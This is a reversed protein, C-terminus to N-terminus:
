SSQPRLSDAIMSASALVFKKVEPHFEPRQLKQKSALRLMYLTHYLLGCMYETQNKNQTLEYARNRIHDIAKFALQAKSDLSGPVDLKDHEMQYALPREFAIFDSLSDLRLAEFKINTELEALDTLRPKPWTRAFDILWITKRVENVMINALRLDGHCISIREPLPGLQHTSEIIEAPEMVCGPLKEKVASIEKQTYGTKFLGCLEEQSFLPKPQEAYIDYPYKPKRTEPSDSWNKMAEYLNGLVELIDEWSTNPRKWYENLAHIRTHDSGIFSSKFGILGGSNSRGSSQPTGYFESYTGPELHGVVYKM